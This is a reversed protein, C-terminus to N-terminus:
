KRLTVQTAIYCVDAWYAEVLVDAGAKLAGRDVHLDNPIMVWVAPTAAPKVDLTNGSFSQVVGSIQVPAAATGSQAWSPNALLGVLAVLGILPFRSRWM